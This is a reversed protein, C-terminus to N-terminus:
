MISNNLIRVREPKPLHNIKELFRRNMSIFCQYNLKHADLNSNDTTLTNGAISFASESSASSTPIGYVLTVLLYLKPFIGKHSSWFDEFEQGDSQINLFKSIEDDLNNKITPGVRSTNKQIMKRRLKQAVNMNNNMSQQSRTEDVKELQGVGFDKWVSTIIRQKEKATLEMITTSTFCPDLISALLHIDNIKFRKNLNSRLAPILKTKATDTKLSSIKSLKIEIQERCILVSGITSFTCGQVLKSVNKFVKLTVILDDILHQEATTLRYKKTKKSSDLVDNIVPLTNNYSVLMNYISDWRTTNSIKLLEPKGDILNLVDAFDCDEYTM